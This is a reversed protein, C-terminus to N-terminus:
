KNNAIKECRVSGDSMRHQLIYMGNPLHTADHQGDAITQILQGSITYISTSVIVENETSELGNNTVVEDTSNTDDSPTTPAVRQPASLATTTSTSCLPEIKLHVNSGAKAHFGNKIHIKNGAKVLLHGESNVNILNNNSCITVNNTSYYTRNNGALITFSDDLSVNNSRLNCLPYIETLFTRNGDYGNFDLNVYTNYGSGWGWNIHYLTETKNNSSAKKKYGTILFSHVGNNEPNWTTKWAQCLVPRYADIEQCLIPEMETWVYEHQRNTHFGFVDQLASNIDKILASSGANGWFITNAAYACDRLLGAVADVQYIDTNENIRDPMKDWDYFRQNLDGHCVGGIITDRIFAYDPWQWYKMIQAMAVAGCGVLTRGCTVNHSAPVFKNYVRDCDLVGNNEDQMWCNDKSFIPSTYDTAVAFQAYEGIDNINSSNNARTSDIANMHQELIFLFAPPLLEEDYTLNGSDRHAIIVPYTKENSLIVWGLSNDTNAIYMYNTSDRSIPEISSIQRIPHSGDIGPANQPSANFFAYAFEEVEVIQYEQAYLCVCFGCIVILLYFKTMIIKM